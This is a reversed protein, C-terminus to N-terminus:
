LMGWLLISKINEKNFKNAQSPNLEVYMLAHGNAHEIQNVVSLVEDGNNLKFVLISNVKLSVSTDTVLLYEKGSPSLTHVDLKLEDVELYM